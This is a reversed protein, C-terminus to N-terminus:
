KDQNMPLAWFPDMITCHGYLTQCPNSKLAGVAFIM